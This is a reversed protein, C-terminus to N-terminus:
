GEGGGPKERKILEVLYKQGKETYLFVEYLNGARMSVKIRTRHKGTEGPSKGSKRM